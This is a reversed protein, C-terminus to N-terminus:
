HDTSSRPRCVVRFGIIYRRDDTLNWTRDASRLYDAVSNWSGGRVVRRGCEGGNEELWARGDDPASKYNDHWCDETWEWVNGHMDHLARANPQFRGVPATQEGDWDSGCNACNALAKGAVDNSGDPAPLAFATTTGARAAYEWEAEAPLRCEYESGTGLWAAFDKADRWSINIGPQRGRGWGADIPLNRNTNKAFADYEEFTVEYKGIYFPEVTVEHIPREDGPGSEKPDSGMRFKGGAIYVMEPGKSGDKLTIRFGEGVEPISQATGKDGTYPHDFSAEEVFSMKYLVAVVVAALTVIVTGKIWRGYGSRAMRKPPRHKQKIADADPQVNNVPAVTATPEAKAPKGLKDAIDDVLDLFAPFQESGDWDSLQPTHIGKFRFPLEVEEIAVPVLKSRSLAYSSEDKVYRSQVSLKSWLVIVCRAKKLAEEIVDDFYEGARLNPDWWVSWGQKELAITLQRAKDQEERKYSIFIDSLERNGM